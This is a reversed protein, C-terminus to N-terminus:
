SKGANFPDQLYELSGDTSAGDVVIIKEDLLVNDLLLQICEKLYPLKNRTTIIYSLAIDNM